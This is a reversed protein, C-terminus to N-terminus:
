SAEQNDRLSLRLRDQFMLYIYTTVTVLTLPIIIFCPALPSRILGEILLSANPSFAGFTVVALSWPLGIGTFRKQPEVFMLCLSTLITSCFYGHTLGFLCQAMLASHYTAQSCLSFFIYSTPIILFLSVILHKQLNKLRIQSSLLLITLCVLIQGFTQTEIAQLHSLQLRQMYSTFYSQCLYSNVCLTSVLLYIPIFTEQGIEKHLLSWSSSESSHQHEKVEPLHKRIHWTLLSLSGGIVFPLRWQISAPLTSQLCTKAILAGFVIGLSSSALILAPYHVKKSQDSWEYLLLTASLFEGSMSIGQLMRFFILLMPALPGVLQYSPLLGIATTSLAMLNLSLILSQKQGFKQYAHNFFYVGLFRSVLGSAFVLWGFTHQWFASQFPFFTKGIVGIFLAFLCYEVWELASGACIVFIHQNTLLGNKKESM